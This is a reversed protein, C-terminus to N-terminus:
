PSLLLPLYNNIIQTTYEFSGIDCIALGDSNGDMPRIIGRQDTSPCNDANAADVAPSIEPIAITLTAGGNDALIDLLPDTYIKSNITVNFHCFNESDINNGGDIPIGFCNRGPDNDSLISNIFTTNPTENFIGGGSRGASNRTITNNKAIIKGVYNMLGGGDFSASNEVFTSNVVNLNGSYLFIGGGKEAFNDAFLSNNIEYNGQGLSIGGGQVASNNIFSSNSINLITIDFIESTSSSIGGGTTSSSNDSISSETLTILGGANCIGGGSGEIGQSQNNTITTLSISTIGNNYLGGGAIASNASITTNTIVANKQYDNYIGGGNSTAINGSFTSNDIVIEGENWLGGGNRANNNSIASNEIIIIGYGNFLGGGSTAAENEIFQTNTILVTGYWNLLGGGAGSPAFGGKVTLNQLTINAFDEVYFVRVSSNGDIVIQNNGDIIIPGDENIQLTSQLTITGSVIFSITDTTFSGAACSDVQTNNNAATLAERISCDGDTDFEDVLTDVIISQDLSKNLSFYSPDGIDALVNTPTFFYLIFFIAVM